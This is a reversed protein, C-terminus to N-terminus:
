RVIKGNVKEKRDEESEYERPRFKLGDIKINVAKLEPNWFVQSQSEYYRQKQNNQLSNPSNPCWNRFIDKLSKRSPPRYM